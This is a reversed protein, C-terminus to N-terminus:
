RKPKAVVIDLTRGDGPVEFMLGSKEPNTMEQPVISRVGTPAKLDEVVAGDIYVQYTGEPLGDDARLSGVVFAGDSEIVGKALFGEKLFCVMGHDVPTGDEYKVTGHLSNFESRCGSVGIFLTSFLLLTALKM